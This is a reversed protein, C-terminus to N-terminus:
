GATMPPFRSPLMFEFWGDPADDLLPDPKISQNLRIQDYKFRLINILNRGSAVHQLNTETLVVMIIGSDRYLDLQEKQAHTDRFHGTVGQPCFLIGFKSKAKDLSRAFKAVVDLPAPNQSFAKCEAIFYRGLETRFDVTHGDLSCVVDRDTATGYEMVRQRIRAGPMCSLTYAALQELVKGKENTNSNDHYNLWSLRSLQYRIYNSTAFYGGTEQNVPLESIWDDDLELLISEPFRREEISTNALERIRVAYRRIETELMGHVVLLRQYSGNAPNVMQRSAEDCLALMAYRKALAFFNMRRFCDSIRVLTTAKWPWDAGIQDALLLRDYIALLLSLREHQPRVAALAHWADQGNEGPGNRLDDPNIHRLREILDVTLELTEQM